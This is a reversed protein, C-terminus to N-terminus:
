SRAANGAAVQEYVHPWNRGVAIHKITSLSVGYEEALEKRPVGDAMRQHIEFVEKEKLIAYNNDEGKKVTYLGLAFAHRLNDGQTVYELNEPHNNHKDGDIHNVTMDAPRPGIFAEAM